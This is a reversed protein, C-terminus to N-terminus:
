GRELAARLDARVDAVRVEADALEGLLGELDWAICAGFRLPAVAVETIGLEDDLDLLATLVLVELDRARAKPSATASLDLLTGAVVLGAELGALEDATASDGAAAAVAAAVPLAVAARAGAGGEATAASRLDRLPDWALDAVAMVDRVWRGPAAAVLGDLSTTALLPQTTPDDTRGTRAVRDLLGAHWALRAAREVNGPRRADLADLLDAVTTPDAGAEVVLEAGDRLRAEDLPVFEWLVRARLAHGIAATPVDEGAPPKPFPVPRVQRLAAGWPARAEDGYPLRADVFRRLPSDPRDLARKLSM